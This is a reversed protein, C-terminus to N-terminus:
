TVKLHIINTCKPFLLISELWIIRLDKDHQNNIQMFSLLIIYIKWTNGVQLFLNTSVNKILNITLSLFM